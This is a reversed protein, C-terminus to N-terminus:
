TGRRDAAQRRSRRSRQRRRYWCYSRRRSRRSTHRQPTGRSCALWSRDSASAGMSVMAFLWGTGSALAFVLSGLAAVAVTPLLVTRRGVTDSLPGAILLSPILVAVYAAFILTVMLPSFGFRAAYGRYLSTALNTGTLLMLLAYAM